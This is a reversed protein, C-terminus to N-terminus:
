CSGGMVIGCGRMTISVNDSDIGITTSDTAPGLVTPSFTYTFQCSANPALPVGACNQSGGFGGDAGGNPAGGAYNPTLSAGTLNTITIPVDRSTGLVVNGFDLALPAV